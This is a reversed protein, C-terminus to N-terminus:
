VLSTKSTIHSIHECCSGNFCDYMDYLDHCPFFDSSIVTVTTFECVCALADVCLKLMLLWLYRFSFINTQKSYYAFIDNANIRACECMCVCVTIHHYTDVLVHVRLLLPFFIPQSLSRFYRIFFLVAIIFSKIPFLMWHSTLIASHIHGFLDVDIYSLSLRVSYPYFFALRWAATACAFCCVDHIEGPRHFFADVLVHMRRAGHM